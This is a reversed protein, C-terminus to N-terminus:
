PKGPIHLATCRWGTIPTPLNLGHRQHRDHCLCLESMSQGSLCGNRMGEGWEGWLAFGDVTGERMGVSPIEREKEIM